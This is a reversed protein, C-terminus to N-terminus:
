FERLSAPWPGRIAAGCGQEVARAVAELFDRSGSVIGLYPYLGNPLRHSTVFGDGDFYGLIFERILCEPLAAPWSLTRSKAPTVGYIALDAIMPRSVFTHPRESGRTRSRKALRKRMRTSKM